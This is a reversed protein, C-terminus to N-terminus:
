LPHELWSYIKKPPSTDQLEVERRDQEWNKLVDVQYDCAWPAFSPIWMAPWSYLWHKKLAGHKGSWVFAIRVFDTRGLAKKAPNLFILERCICWSMYSGFINKNHLLTELGLTCRLSNPQSFTDIMRIIRGLVRAFCSGFRIRNHACNVLCPHFTFSICIIWIIIYSAYIYNLLMVYMYKYCHM